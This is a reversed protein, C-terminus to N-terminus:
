VSSLNISANDNSTVEDSAQEEETLMLPNEQSSGFTENGLSQSKVSSDKSDKRREYKPTLRRLFNAAAKKALNRDQKSPTGGRESDYSKWSQADPAPSAMNSHPNKKVDTWFLEDYEQYNEPTKNQREMRTARVASRYMSRSVKLYEIRTLIKVTYDPTFQQGAEYSLAGIGFIAFPGDEFMINESGVTVEVRGQIILVFHDCNFDKKYLYIDKNKNEQDVDREEVAGPFDIM